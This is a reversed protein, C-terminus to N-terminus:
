EEMSVKTQCINCYIEKLALQVAREKAASHKCEKSITPDPLGIAEYCRRQCSSGPYDDGVTKLATELELIRRHAEKLVIDHEYVQAWRQQSMLLLQEKINM